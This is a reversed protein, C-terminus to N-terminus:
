LILLIAGGGELATPLISPPLSQAGCLSLYEIVVEILLLLLRGYGGQHRYRTGCQSHGTIIKYFIYESLPFGPHTGAPKRHKQELTQFKMRLLFTIPLPLLKGLTQCCTILILPPILRSTYKELYLINSEFTSSYVDKHKGELGVPLKLDTWQFHWRSKTTLFSFFSLKWDWESIQM